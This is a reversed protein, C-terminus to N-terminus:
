KMMIYFLHCKKLVELNQTNTHKFCNKTRQTLKSIQKHNIKQTKLQM